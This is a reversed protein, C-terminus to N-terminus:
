PILVMVEVGTGGTVSDLRPVPIEQGVFNALEANAIVIDTDGSKPSLTLSGSGSALVVVGIVDTSNYTTASVRVASGAAGSVLAAGSSDSKWGSLNKFAAILVENLTAM